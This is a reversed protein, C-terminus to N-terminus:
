LSIKFEENVFVDVIADFLRKRHSIVYDDSSVFPDNYDVGFLYDVHLM